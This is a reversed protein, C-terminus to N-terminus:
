SEVDRWHSTVRLRGKFRPDIVTAIKLTDVSNFQCENLVTTLKTAIDNQINSEKKRLLEAQNAYTQLLHNYLPLILAISPLVDECLAESFTFSLKFQFKVVCDNQKKLYFSLFKQLENNSCICSTSNHKTLYM